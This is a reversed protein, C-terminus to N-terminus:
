ADTGSATITLPARAPAAPVATILANMSRAGSSISRAPTPAGSGGAGGSSGSAAPERGFLEGLPDGLARELALLARHGSLRHDQNFHV